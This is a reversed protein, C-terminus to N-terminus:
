QLGGKGPKKSARRDAAIVLSELFALAFPGIDKPESDPICGRIDTDDPLSKGLLESVVGVWSPMCSEYNGDDLWRGPLGFLKPSLDLATEENLWGPIPKLKDDPTIGFVDKHDKGTSRLVTRVKGHHAAILYASLATMGNKGDQWRGWVALSSAAEHRLKPSFRVRLSKMLPEKYIGKNRLLMEIMSNWQPFKAQLSELNGEPDIERMIVSGIEPPMGGLKSLLRRHLSEIEGQWRPHSKGVDHWKAAMIVSNKYDDSICFNNVLELAEAEADKLHAQLPLWDGESGVDDFLAEPSKPLALGRVPVDEKQGTWGLDESYGGASKALLLTMGPCLMDSRVKQYKKAEPNWEWAAIKNSKLFTKLAYVSVRCFTDREPSLEDQPEDKFEAWFVQVDADQDIDRIYRSIDTFGGALDPETSFLDYLDPPRIVIDHSIERAKESKETKLVVDLADRYRTGQQIREELDNLLAQSADLDKKEYPGIRGENPADKANYIKSDAKPMWFKAYANNNQMGRRNLRGLRQIISSWPAIESWLCDASVDLGAEVVQTSVLIIGPDDYELRDEKQKKNFEIIQSMQDKRDCQRMRGHLLIIKPAKQNSKANRDIYSRIDHFWKQANPVTNLIILTFYGPAKFHHDLIGNNDKSQAVIPEKNLIEIKKEANLSSIGVTEEQSLRLIRDKPVEDMSYDSRDRTNFMGKGPTASMWIFNCGVASPRFKEQFLQLQVTTALGNGMLQVEDMVWLCDNNLLGFHMPWRYRSMGYGRNLARSLLMDQTGILIADREPYLDWDGMKKKDEGGMLVTVAIRKGEVGCKAALQDFAFPQEDGPAEALMGLNELWESAKKATQEVLVRMPLCYVLRRPTAARVQPGAFRRRWLWALVVADTKGLGTPIDILEPLRDCTALRTQFPYPDHGESSRGDLTATKFFEKFRREIESSDEVM